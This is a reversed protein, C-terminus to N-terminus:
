VSFQSRGGGEGCGQASGPGDGGRVLDGPGRAWDVILGVMKHVPAEPTPRGARSGRRRTSLALPAPVGVMCPATSHQTLM